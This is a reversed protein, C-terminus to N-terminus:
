FYIKVFEFKCESMFFNMKHLQSEILWAPRFKKKVLTLIICLRIRFFIQCANECLGINYLNKVLELLSASPCHASFEFIVHFINTFHETIVSFRDGSKEGSWVKCLLYYTPLLLMHEHENRMCFNLNQFGYVFYFFILHM